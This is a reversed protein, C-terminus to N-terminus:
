AFSEFSGPAALIFGLAPKRVPLFFESFFLDFLLEILDIVTFVKKAVANAGVSLSTM